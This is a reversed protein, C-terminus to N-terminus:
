LRIFGIYEDLLLIVNPLSSVPFKKLFLISLEFIKRSNPDPFVVIIASSFLNIIIRYFTIFIKKGMNLFFHLLFFVNKYNLNHPIKNKGVKLFSM